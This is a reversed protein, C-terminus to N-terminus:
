DGRMLKIIKLKEIDKNLKLNSMLLTIRVNSLNEETEFLPIIKRITRYISGGKNYAPLIFLNSFIINKSNFLIKVSIFFSIIFFIKEPTTLNTFNARIKFNRIFNTKVFFVTNMQNTVLNFQVRLHIEKLFNNMIKEINKMFNEFIHFHEFFEEIENENVSIKMKEDGDRLIADIEKFMKILTSLNSPGNKKDLNNPISLNDLESEVRLIEQEIELMPRLPQSLFEKSEGFQFEKGERLKKEYNEQAQGLRKQDNKITELIEEYDNKLIEYNPSLEEFETRSQKSKQKINRIEYLTNKAKKQLARIKESNTLNIDIGLRLFSDDSYETKSGEMQRTIKNIQNFCDKKIQSQEQILTEDTSLSKQVDEIQNKRQFFDEKLYSLKVENRKISEALSKMLDADALIEGSSKRIKSLELERHLIKKRASIFILHFISDMIEINNKFKVYLELNKEVVRNYDSLIELVPTFDILNFSNNQENSIVRIFNELPILDLNEQIKLYDINNYELIQNLKFKGQILTYRDDISIKNDGIEIETNSSKIRLIV